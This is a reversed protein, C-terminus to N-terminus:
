GCLVVKTPLNVSIICATRTTIICTLSEASVVPSSVLFITSEASVAGFRGKSYLLPDLRDPMLNGASARRPAYEM